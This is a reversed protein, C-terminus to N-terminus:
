QIEKNSFLILCCLNHVFLFDGKLIFYPKTDPSNKTLVSIRWETFKSETRLYDLFNVLTFTAISWLFIIGTFTFFYTTTFSCRFTINELINSLYIYTVRDPSNSSFYFLNKSSCTLVCIIKSIPVLWYM